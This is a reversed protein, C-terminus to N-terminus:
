WMKVIINFVNRFSDLLGKYFTKTTGREKHPAFKKTKSSIVTLFSPILSFNWFQFALTEYYPHGSRLFVRLPVVKSPKSVNDNSKVKFSIPQLTPYPFHALAM